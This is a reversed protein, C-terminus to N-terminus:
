GNKLVQSIMAPDRIQLVGRPGAEGGEYIRRAGGPLQVELTGVRLGQLMWLLVRLGLTMRQPTARRQMPETLARMLPERLPTPQHSKRELEERSM